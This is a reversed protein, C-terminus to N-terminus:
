EGTKLQVYTRRSQFKSKNSADGSMQFKGSKFLPNNGAEINHDKGANRQCATFM